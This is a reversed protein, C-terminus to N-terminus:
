RFIALTSIEHSGNEKSQYSGWTEFAASWWKRNSDKPIETNARFYTYGLDTENVPPLALESMLGNRIKSHIGDCAVLVDGQFVREDDTEIIVKDNDRKYQNIKQSAVFQVDDRNQLGDSLLNILDNRNLALVPFHDNFDDPAKALVRGQSDRYSPNPMPQAVQEMVQNYNPINSLVEQSPPWLGIGGGVSAKNRQSVTQAEFITVRFKVDKNSHVLLNALTLGSIGGGVILIDVTKDM